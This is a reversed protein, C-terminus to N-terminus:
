TAQTLDDKPEHLNENIGLFTQYVPPQTELATKSTQRTVSQARSSYFILSPLPATTPFSLSPIPLSVLLCSFLLFPFPPLFPCSISTVKAKSTYESLRFPKWQRHLKEKDQICYPECYTRGIEIGQEESGLETGQGKRRGLGKLRLM